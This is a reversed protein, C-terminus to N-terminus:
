KVKVDLAARSTIVPAVNKCVWHIQCFAGRVNSYPKFLLKTRKLKGTGPRNGKVGYPVASFILAQPATM